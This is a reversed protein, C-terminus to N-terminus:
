APKDSMLNFLKDRDVLVCNNSNALRQAISSYKSNTVVMARDCGYVKLAAVVQRVAGAKVLGSHRKVQIGWCTGNKKAVIDVGMDYRETLKIGHFGHRKLLNAIYREFELGDMLDINSLALNQRRTRRIRLLKIALLAILLAAMGLYVYVMLSSYKWAAIGVLTVLLSIDFLRSQKRRAM